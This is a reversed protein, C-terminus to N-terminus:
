ERNTLKPVAGVLSALALTAGLGIAGAIMPHMAASTYLSTRMVHGEYDGREQGGFGPKYLAGERDRDNPRGSHTGEMLKKGIVKDAVSPAWRRLAGAAKAGGGIYQDRVPNEAANLIADAVIEPSYVPPVHTPKDPLLNKAHQTFPTDIPGPKILTVSVPANQQQLEM